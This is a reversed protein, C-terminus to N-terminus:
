KSWIIKFSSVKWSCTVMRRPIAANMPSPSVAPSLCECCRRILPESKVNKALILVGIIVVVTQWQKPREYCYRRDM